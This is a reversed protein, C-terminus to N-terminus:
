FNCWDCRIELVPPYTRIKPRTLLLQLYMEVFLPLVSIHACSRVDRSPESIASYVSGSQIWDFEIWNPIQDPRIWDSSGSCASKQLYSIIAPSRSGSQISDVRYLQGGGEGMCVCM